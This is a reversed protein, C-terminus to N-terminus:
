CGPPKANDDDDDIHKNSTSVEPTEISHHKDRSGIKLLLTSVFEVSPEKASVLFLTDISVSSSLSSLCTETMYWSGSGSSARRHVAGRVSAVAMAAASGAAVAVDDNDDDNGGGMLLHTLSGSYSAVSAVCLGPRNRFLNGESGTKKLLMLQQDRGRPLTAGLQAQLRSYQEQLHRQRRVLDRHRVELELEQQRRGGSGSGQSESGSSEKSSTRPPPMPNHSSSSSSCAGGGGGGSSGLLPNGSSPTKVPSPASDSSPFSPLRRVSRVIPPTGLGPYPKPSFGLKTLDSSGRLRGQQFAQSSAEFHEEM